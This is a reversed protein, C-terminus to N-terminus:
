PAPVRASVADLAAKEDASLALDDAALLATLQDPTRASAIPAIVEPQALLWALAVTAPHAGRATAIRQVEDVVALGAASYYPSTFRERASAAITASSRHKGTLFGSALAFYPIVALGSARAVPAIDTEYAHRRVLNYHPQLAAPRPWGHADALAVWEAIRAGSYNSLGIHEIKGAVQLERFASVTEELSVSPDDYHAFYVAIREVGLRGLSADAAALINSRSLGPFDPHRSVKTAIRLPVHPRRARLWAGITTESEGGGHGEVWASYVDATDIMTGGGDVFADLVVRSEAEDSTWGFTNGGLVLRAGGALLDIM